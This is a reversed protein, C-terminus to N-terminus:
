KEKKKLDLVVMLAPALLLDALLAVVIAASALIGFSILNNMSSFVYVFFGMSLVISTVLMARGAGTLTNQIAAPPSLGEDTYRKYNHMFHMTDDVALGIVISGILMSFLDMPLNLAYMIGLTSLIPFLNPIMSILGLKFDGLLFIMMLTIALFAILYSEGMSRIATTVTSALIVIMGTQRITAKGAFIVQARHNIDEILSHYKIADVWPVKFTIRATQFQSDVFTKLDDSGSNEFLLFEQAILQRNQPIAYYDANNENLAQHVEKLIDVLSMAKGVFYDETQIAMAQTMLLDIGNLIDPDHLGNEQKTHILLEMSVSGRLAKDIITTAVRTPHDKAMWEMPNHSYSLQTAAYIWGAMLLISGILIPKAYKISIDSFWILLKNMRDTTLGKKHLKPKIPFIALLTPLLICTYLLALLVGMSAFLGLEAVPALGSFAFSLLGAATTLSTMLIPLGSHGLTYRLAAGKNHHEDFHKYFIALIHVSAGVGVALLFSPIIQTMIKVSTGTHALLGMTSITSLAVTFLPLIVGSVRRFLIGLFIIITLLILGIFTAMDKQMARKLSDTLYPSGAMHITFNPKQNEKIIKSLATIMASNELDTLFTPPASPPQQPSTKDEADDFADDFADLMEAESEKKPSYTQSEIVIASFTGAKNILLNEFLRSAQVTKKIKELDEPTKPWPDFLDKVILNDKEGLTVRANILGSVDHIHPVNKEISTQLNKLRHITEFTFLDDASITLVLKEERGFTKRFDDYAVRVPDNPHLFSETSTDITTRPLASALIAFLVLSGVLYSYKHTLMSLALNDFFVSFVKRIDPM